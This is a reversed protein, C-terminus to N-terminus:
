IQAPRIPSRLCATDVAPAAPAGDTRHGVDMRRRILVELRSSDVKKKEWTNWKALKRSRNDLPFTYLEDGEEEAEPGRKRMMNGIEREEGTALAGARVDDANDEDVEMNEETRKRPPRM